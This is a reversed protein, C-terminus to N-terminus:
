LLEAFHEALFEDFDIPEYTVEDNYALFIPKTDNQEEWPDDDNKYFVNREVVYGDQIEVFIIYRAKTHTYNRQESVFMSGKDGVLEILEEGTM